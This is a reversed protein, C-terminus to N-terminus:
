HVEKPSAFSVERTGLPEAEIVGSSTEFYGVCLLRYDDQAVEKTHIRANRVAVADTKAIWVPGCEEAVRDFLTYMGYKM